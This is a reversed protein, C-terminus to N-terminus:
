TKLSSQMNHIDIQLGCDVQFGRINKKNKNVTISLFNARLTVQNIGLLFMSNRCEYVYHIMTIKFDKFREITPLCSVLNPATDRPLPSNKALPILVRISRSKPAM